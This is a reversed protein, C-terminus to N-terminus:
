QTKVAENENDELDDIFYKAKEPYLIAEVKKMNPMYGNAHNSLCIIASNTQSDHLYFSQFGHWWGSHFTQWSSDPLMNIRWGFGYNKTELNKFTLKPKLAEALTESKILKNTNLANDWLLLDSITSYIGKDGVVGDLYDIAAQRSPTDFGKAANKIQDPKTPDYIFTNKMGAPEFLHKQAYTRFDIGSLKEVIYALYMYNSNNYNFRANPLYNIGPKHIEMLDVVIKNTLPKTKDYFKDLCYIYNPIGSSHTLLSFITISSDFPFNPVHKYVPDTYKLLGKEQLQMIAVATFQKSVSALQFPTEIDLVEKTLLNKCGFSGKYIVHGKESVLVNGNFVGKQFLDMFLSDLRYAKEDAAKQNFANYLSDLNSQSKTTSNNFQNNTKQKCNQFFLLYILIFFYALNRKLTNINLIFLANL